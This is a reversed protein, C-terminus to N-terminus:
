KVEVWWQQNGVKNIQRDKFAENVAQVVGPWGDIYDDGCIIGGKKVKPLWAQIDQIVSSYDHSADIYVIDFYKDTYTKSALISDSQILQIKDLVPRLYNTAEEYSPTMNWAKHEDSGEFNDIAHYEYVVNQNILEVNWIATGRGKYVGIEAIKLNKKSSLKNLLVRILEGQDGISSWGPITEFFHNM